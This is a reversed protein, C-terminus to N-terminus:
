EASVEQRAEKATISKVWNLDGKAWIYALGVTGDANETGIVTSGRTAYEVSSIYYVKVVGTNFLSVYLQVLRSPDWTPCFRVLITYGDGAEHEGAFALAYDLVVEPTLTEGVVGRIGAVSVMLRSKAM